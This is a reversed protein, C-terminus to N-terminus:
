TVLDHGHQDQEFTGFWATQLESLGAAKPTVDDQLEWAHKLTM